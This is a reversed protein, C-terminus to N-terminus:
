SSFHLALWICVEDPSVWSVRHKKHAEIFQYDGAKLNVEKANEFVLTARGQLLLVWEDNEQNYWEDEPTTQGATIIREVKIGNGEHLTEFVEDQLLKNPLNDFLNHISM